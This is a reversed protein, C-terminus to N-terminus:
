PDESVPAPIPRTSIPVLWPVPDFRACPLLAGPLDIGPPTERGLALEALDLDEHPGVPHVGGAPAIEARALPNAVVLTPPAAALDAALDRLLDGGPQGARRDLEAILNRDGTRLCVRGSGSGLGLDYLRAARDAPRIADLDAGLPALGPEPRPLPRVRPVALVIRGRASAHGGEDLPLALARARETITLRIARGARELTITGAPRDVRGAVDGRLDFRAPTGPPGVTWSGGRVRLTAEAFALIQGPTWALRHLGIGLAARRRPLDAWVRDREAPDADKWAAIEAGSRACGGCLQAAPDLRCSGVCPSPIM